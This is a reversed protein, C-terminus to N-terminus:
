VVHQLQQLATNDNPRDHSGTRVSSRVICFSLLWLLDASLWAALEFATQKLETFKRRQCALSHTLSFSEVALPWFVRARACLHVHGQRTM